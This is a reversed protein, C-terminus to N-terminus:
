SSGYECCYPSSDQRFLPAYEEIFKVTEQLIKHMSWAPSYPYSDIAVAIPDGMYSHYISRFVLAPTGVPYDDPLNIEVIFYFDEERLLIVMSKFFVIDYEIICRDFHSLFKIFYMKRRDYRSAALVAKTKLEEELAIIYRTLYNENVDDPLQFTEALGLLTQINKSLYLRQNSRNSDRNPFSVLLLPFDEADSDGKYFDPLLKGFEVHLRILFVVPNEPELPVFIEIDDEHFNQLQFLCLYEFSLHEYKDLEQIQRKKYFQMIERMTCLLGDTKNVDWSCLSEIQNIPVFFRSDSFVFDPPCEPGSSQFIVMCEIRVGAYPIILEFRDCNSSKADYCPFSPKPNMVQVEKHCLGFNPEYLMTEVHNRVHPVLVTTEVKEVESESEDEMALSSVDSLAISPLNM